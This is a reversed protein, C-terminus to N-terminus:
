PTEEGGSPVDVAVRSLYVVDANQGGYPAMVPLRQFVGPEPMSYLGVEILYAGPPTEPSLVFEHADVVQQGPTWTSTPAAGSVPYADSAGYIAQTERDFVHVFVTYDRNITDLAQWYLTITLSDGPQLRRASVEYGQLAILGAFDDYRANPIDGEPALPLLTVRTDLPFWSAGGESLMREGSARDYLGIHLTLEDPTYVGDPVDIVVSESWADGPQLRETALLGHGPYRDRQAAITGASDIAHVFLSWRRTPTQLVVWDLALEIQDGPQVASSLVEGAVLRFTPVDAGPEYFLHGADDIAEVFFGPAPPLYAPRIWLFPTLAAVVLYVAAYGAMLRRSWGERWLWALGVALWLSIPGIAVFMLRGQSAPTLSTWRLLAAFAVAPWVLTLLLPGVRPQRERPLRGLVGALLFTVFGLLSVGGLVNFMVYFAEPLPVNFGGFMGWWSRLFSERENWLQAPGPPVARGGVIEVMVNIGTPDGYHQWNWLYWWGAIVITLGGSIAGGIVVPRWCRVRRSVILLTLAVVPLLFGISVKALLGAGATLGLWIYDGNNPTSQRNLLRALQWILLGALLGSLNDNNVSGSIFLFMPLFANLAAAGLAVDPWNPFVERGILYTTLVTGSAMLLSLFRAVHVALITGTWPLAERAPDHVVLNINGDARVLGSDVHPNLQRAAPLDSTDIHLTALAALLYYLPPQSGEQRYLGPAAPDQVPLTLGSTALHQVFPYHAVEDSAEFVPTVVSFALGLLLNTALILLLWRNQRIM